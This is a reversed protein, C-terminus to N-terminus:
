SPGLYIKDGLSLHLQRGAHGQNVAIELFGNSGKLFLAEGTKVDSYSRAPGAVRHAGAEIRWSPKDALLESPINTMLNGYADMYIIEGHIASESKRTEPFDLTQFNPLDPGVSSAPIGLSLHAAVPAFVDRGHFSNSIRDLCLEQNTVAYTQKVRQKRALFSILGNDPLVFLGHETVAAMAQRASGVGPDVVVVHIANKPFYPLTDAILLAAAFINQRPIGHTIDVVQARPNISLIVGKMAGVFGDQYGFDTTLTILANTKAM